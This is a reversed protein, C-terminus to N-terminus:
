QEPIPFWGVPETKGFNDNVIAIDTDDVCGNENQDALPVFGSDGTCTGYAGMAILLDALDVSGDEDVDGGPLIATGMDVAEFPVITVTGEMDLHGPRRATITYTGPAHGLIAFDGGAGTTTVVVGDLLIQTGTHV